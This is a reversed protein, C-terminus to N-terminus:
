GLVHKIKELLVEVNIPKHIYDSAGLEIATTMTLKDTRGTIIIFPIHATKPNEKVRRLVELGNLVPMDLDCLILDLPITNIQALAQEGNEAETLTYDELELVDIVSARYASNDDTILIHAM